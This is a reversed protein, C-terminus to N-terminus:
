MVGNRSYRSPSTRGATSTSKAATPISSSIAHTFTVASIKVLVTSRVRSIDTRAASPALRTRSALCTSVSDITSPSTEPTIPMTSAAASKSTSTALKGSSGANWCVRESSQVVRQLAIPSAIMVPLRIASAGIRFRSRPSSVSPASLSRLGPVPAACAPRICFASTTASTKSATTSTM